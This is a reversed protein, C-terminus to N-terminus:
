PQSQGSPNAAIQGEDNASNNVDETDNGDEGAIGEMSLGMGTGNELAECERLLWTACEAASEKSSYEAEVVADRGAENVITPDAGHRVLAQVVELNGNLAAWHLPTNGSVNQHNTLPILIVQQGNVGNMSSPPLSLSKLLDLLYNLMDLDGNAAPYHLLCARSGLGEEDVDIASLIINAESVNHQSALQAVTQRLEDLDNARCAYVLDDVSETSLVLSMSGNIKAM